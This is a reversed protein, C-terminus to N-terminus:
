MVGNSIESIIPRIVRAKPASSTARRRRFGFFSSEHRDSVASAPGAIKFARLPFECANHVDYKAHM